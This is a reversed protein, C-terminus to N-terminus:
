DNYGWHHRRDFQIGLTKHILKDKIMDPVTLYPYELVFPCGDTHRWSHTAFFNKAAEIDKKSHQDFFRKPKILTELVM